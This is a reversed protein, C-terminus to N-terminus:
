SWALVEVPNREHGQCVGQLSRLKSVHKYSLDLGNILMHSILM